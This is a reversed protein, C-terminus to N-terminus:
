RLLNPCCSWPSDRQLVRRLPCRERCVFADWPALSQDWDLSRELRSSLPRLSQFQGISRFAVELREPTANGKIWRDEPCRWRLLRRRRRRADEDGAIFARTSAQAVPELDLPVLHEVSSRAPTLSSELARREGKEQRKPSTILPSANEALRNRGPVQQNVTSFRQGPGQLSRHKPVPIGCQRLSSREQRSCAECTLEVTLLSFSFSTEDCEHTRYQGQQWEM